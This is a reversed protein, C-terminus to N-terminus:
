FFNCFFKLKETVDFRIAYAYLMLYLYFYYSIACNIQLKRSSDKSGLYDMISYYKDFVFSFTITDMKYFKKSSFLARNAAFQHLRGGKNQAQRKLCLRAM